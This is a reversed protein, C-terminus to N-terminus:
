SGLIARALTDAAEQDAVPLVHAYTDLTIGISAHGLRESIVKVEHWGRATALGATAYTHRVDHLRIRPLGAASCHERFWRSFREPHVLSGDPWTFVLDDRHQGLWDHQRSQWAPGTKLRSESQARKHSRLIETTAPDLSMTREGAATKPRPKWTAKGDVVGLTMTVRLRAQDLDVDSWSLGAVEGRRMGTTAFLLWAAYFRDDAVHELFARLEDVTWVDTSAKPASPARVIDAPNRTLAGIRVADALAKHLLRHVNLVTKSSLPRGNRGGTQEIEDYFRDLKAPTLEDLRVAGIRPVVYTEIIGRYDNWTGIGLQGRHRRGAGTTPRRGPLWEDQLYEALSQRRPDVYTGRGLESLADVLARQADRKTRFGGRFQQRRETRDEMSGGCRPCAAVRGDSGWRRHKCATCRQCPQHGAWYAIEYSKGRKRISGSM